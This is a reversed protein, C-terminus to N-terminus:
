LLGEPPDITVLMREIDVAVVIEKVIPILRSGAETEVELLDQAAGPVVALVTGVEDGDPLQVKCGVLDDMWFEDQELERRVDPTVYLPGRIDEAADRDEVGEFKVLLRNNHPRSAEITLTTDDERILVSGEDFRHPDDSIPVVYVEGSLGHPKGVQGALLRSQESREGLRGIM